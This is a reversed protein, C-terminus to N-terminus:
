ESVNRMQEFSVKKCTDIQMEKFITKKKRQQLSRQGIKVFNLCLYCKLM